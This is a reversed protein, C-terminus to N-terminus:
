LTSSGRPNSTSHSRRNQLTGQGGLRIEEDGAIRMQQIQPLTSTNADHWRGQRQLLDRSLAWRSCGM